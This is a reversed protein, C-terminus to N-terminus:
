RRGFPLVFPIYWGGIAGTFGAALLSGVALISRGPRNVRVIAPRIRACLREALGKYGERTFHVNGEGARPLGRALEYGNVVNRPGGFAGLLARNRKGDPDEAFPGVVVVEMANVVQLTDALVRMLGAYEYEDREQVNTGLAIVALNPRGFERVVEVNWNNESWDKASTGSKSYVAVRRAGVLAAALGLHPAMGETISDGIFLVSAAYGQSM